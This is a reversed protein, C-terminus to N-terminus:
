CRKANYYFVKRTVLKFFMRKKWSNKKGIYFIIDSFFIGNCYEFMVDGRVHWMIKFCEYGMWKGSCTSHFNLCSFCYLFHCFSHIFWVFLRLFVNFIKKFYEEVSLIRSKKIGFFNSPLLLFPLFFFSFLFVYSIKFYLSFLVRISKGSERKELQAWNTEDLKKKEMPFFGNWDYMYSRQLMLM